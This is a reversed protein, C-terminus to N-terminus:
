SENVSNADDLMQIDDDNKQPHSRTNNGVARNEQSVMYVLTNARDEIRSSINHVADLKNLVTEESGRM